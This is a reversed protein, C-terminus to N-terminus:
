CGPKMGRVIAGLEGWFVDDSVYGTIRGAEQGCRVAVFTPAVRLNKLFALDPPLNELRVVRLPLRRGEDTKPYIAGLERHWKACWPCGKTEVMVLADARACATGAGLALVAAVVPALLPSRRLGTM